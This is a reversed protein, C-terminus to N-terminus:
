LSKIVHRKVTQKDAICTSTGFTTMAPTTTPIHEWQRNLVEIYCADEFAESLWTLTRAQEHPKAELGLPVAEVSLLLPLPLDM